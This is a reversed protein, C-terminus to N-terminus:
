QFIADLAPQLEPYIFNYGAEQLRQPLVFQGTLLLDSAEGMLMNLAFAPMPIVTPRNLAKGLAKTFAANSVPSPATFNFAGKLSDNAILYHIGAVMDDIHIWSMGQKGNGIPGGLGLSFPLTMKGLAGKGKGLVIGTRLMCVRTKESQAGSAINEWTACLRHTFEDNINHEVETVPTSSQRGYYGIASGSIFVSPPSASAQLLKIIHSTTQWRSDQIKQKQTKTWRKDAIPEGALNIVCDFDDLHNLHNLSAIVAVECSVNEFQNLCDQGQRSLVSVKVGDPLSRIFASGVFGTGGTIM